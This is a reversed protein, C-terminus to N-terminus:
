LVLHYRIFLLQGALFAQQALCTHLRLRVVPDRQREAGAGGTPELLVLYTVISDFWYRTLLLDIM